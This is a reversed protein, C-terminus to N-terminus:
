TEDTTPLELGKALSSIRPVWQGGVSRRVMIIETSAVTLCGSKGSACARGSQVKGSQRGAQHNAQCIRPHHADWENVIAVPVGTRV